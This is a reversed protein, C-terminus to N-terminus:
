PSAPRAASRRWTETVAWLNLPALSGGYALRRASGDVFAFNAGKYHRNHDVEAVDNGLGQFFDMHVESSFALKEGFSITDSPEPVTDIKMGRPWQWVKYSEYNAPSLHKEFWDNFGNILYTRSNASSDVPCKLVNPSRYFPRLSVIWNGGPLARPPYEGGNDDAYM